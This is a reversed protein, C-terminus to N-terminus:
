IFILNKIQHSNPVELTPPPIFFFVYLVCPVFFPQKSKRAEPIRSIINAASEFLGRTYTQAPSAAERNNGTKTQALSLTSLQDAPPHGGILMYQESYNKFHERFLELGRVM